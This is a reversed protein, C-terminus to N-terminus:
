LHAYANRKEEGDKFVLPNEPNRDILSIVRDQSWVCQISRFEKAADIARDTVKPDLGWLRFQTQMRPVTALTGFRFSSGDEDDLHLVFVETDTNYELVFFDGPLTEPLPAQPM